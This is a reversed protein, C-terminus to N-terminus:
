LLEQLRRALTGEEHDFRELLSRVLDINAGLMLEGIRVRDKIRFAELAM